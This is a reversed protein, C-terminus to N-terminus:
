EGAVFVEIGMRQIIRWQQYDKKGFLAVDHEVINFLKTVVTAVGKFFIPRSKGCMDKELREVRVWTGHGM